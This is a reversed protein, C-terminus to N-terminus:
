TLEMRNNTTDTEGGCREYVMEGDDVVVFGWGGPGPNPSCGGDTYIQWDGVM